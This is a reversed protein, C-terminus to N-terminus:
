DIGTHCCQESIQWDKMGNITRFNLYPCVLERSLINRKDGTDIIFVWINKAHCQKYKMDEWLARMRKMFSWYETVSESVTKQIPAATELRGAVAGASEETHNEAKRTVREGRLAWEVTM